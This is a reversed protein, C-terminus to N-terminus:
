SLDINSNFKESKMSCRNYYEGNHNFINLFILEIYWLALTRVDNMIDTNMREHKGKNHVLNNRVYTIVAPGDMGNFHKKGIKDLEVPVSLEIKLLSLLIRIKNAASLSDGEKGIIVKRKEILIWNCLLELCTQAAIISIEFQGSNKNSEYYYYTSMELFSKIDENKWLMQYKKWISTYDISESTNYFSSFVRAYSDVQQSSYDTWLEKGNKFGRVLVASTRSGNLFSLFQNFCEFVKAVDKFFLKGQKKKLFGIYLIAYGGRERLLDSQLKSYSSVKQIEIEYKDDDFKIFHRYEITKESRVDEHVETLNALNPISFWITDVESDRKLYDSHAFVKGGIQNKSNAWTMMAKGVVMEGIKLLREGEFANVPIEYEGEFVIGFTPFWSFEIIGILSNEDSENGISFKGKEILIRDNPTLTLFAGGQGFNIKRDEYFSRLEM